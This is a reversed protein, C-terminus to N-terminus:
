AIYVLINSGNELLINILTPHMVCGEMLSSAVGVVCGSFGLVAGVVPVGAFALGAGSLVTSVINLAEATSLGDGDFCAVVSQVASIGFGVVSASKGFRLVEESANKIAPLWSSWLGEINSIIGIPTIITEGQKAINQITFCRVNGEKIDTDIQELALLGVSYAEADSIVTGNNGNSAGGSSGNNNGGSDAGGDGPNVPPNGGGTYEGEIIIQDLIESDEIKTDPAGDGDSDYWYDKGDWFLGNSLREYGSIKNDDGDGYSGNNDCGSSKTMLRKKSKVTMPGLIGFAKKANEIMGEETDSVMKVSCVIGGDM